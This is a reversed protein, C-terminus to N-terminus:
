YGNKRFRSPSVGYTKKFVNSFYYPDSYGVKKAIVYTKEETRNLLEAARKMRVERVYNVYNQGTGKKFVTSFYSQSLNLHECLMEVSLEANAYNREVYEKARRVIYGTNDERKEELSKRIQLCLKKFFAAIETHSKMHM